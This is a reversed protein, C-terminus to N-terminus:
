VHRTGGQDLYERDQRLSKEYGENRRFSANLSQLDPRSQLFQLIDEMHFQPNRPYLAEFVQRVVEYDAPEDVTWRYRSLNHEQKYAGLKFHEPHRYFYPTVHERESPLTAESWARRLGAASFIEVDLGDPFTPELTNSAYDFHGDLYFRCTDDVIKPDILPCDATFRAIHQPQYSQAAQYFRDLVDPLSGRFCQINGSKCLDALSDDSADVSTAVLLSDIETACRIREIQRLLM